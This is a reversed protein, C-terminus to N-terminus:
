SNKDSGSEGEYYEKGAKHGGQDDRGMRWAIRVLLYFWYWHLFALITLGAFNVLFFPDYQTWFGEGGLSIGRQRWAEQCSAPDMLSTWILLPLKYLRFYAWTFLNVGFVMEVIFLHRAGSLEMHNAIKVLDIFIDSVDHLFVVYLSYQWHNLIVGGGVIIGVTVVHHVFMVFYDKRREDFWRHQVTTYVYIALETLMCWKVLSPVDAISSPHNDGTLAPAAMMSMLVHVALQWAQEQLKRRTVAKALPNRELRESVAVGVRLAVYRACDAGVKTVAVLVLVGGIVLPEGRFVWVLSVVEVIFLATLFHNLLPNPVYAPASAIRRKPRGGGERCSM